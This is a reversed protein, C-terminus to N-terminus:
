AEGEKKQSKLEKAAWRVVAAAIKVSEKYEEEKIAPGIGPYRTFVAFRSLQEAQRISKPIKQGAKELLPLLKALDHTYPFKVDYKILLAKIAKEAAQQASFCLDELYVGRRQAKAQLLNSRARNLWERPDEPPYREPM